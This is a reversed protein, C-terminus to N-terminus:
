FVEHGHIIPRNKNKLMKKNIADLLSMNIDGSLHLIRIVADALEEMFHEKNNDRYDEMAECVLESVILALAEGITLDGNKFIIGERNWHVKWGHKNANETALKQLESLNEIM